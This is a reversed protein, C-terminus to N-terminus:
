SREPFGFLKSQKSPTYSRRDNTNLSDDDAKQADTQFFAEPEDVDAGTEDEGLEGKGDRMDALWQIIDEYNQRWDDDIAKRRLLAYYVALQACTQKLLPAAEDATRLQSGYRGLLYRDITAGATVIFGNLTATVANDSITAEPEVSAYGVLDEEDIWIMLDSIECYAM